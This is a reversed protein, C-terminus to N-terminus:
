QFQLSVAVPESINHIQVRVFSAKLFPMVTAERGIGVLDSLSQPGGLTERGATIEFEGWAMDQPASSLATAM